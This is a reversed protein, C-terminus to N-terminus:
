KFGYKRVSNISICLISILNKFFNFQNYNKNIYWIWYFNRIKNSQLSNSRIRYKTLIETVCYAYKIKKLIKCKFYYDECIKTNTFNVNKVLNKKIIMTSTGISTNKVFSDFNIKEPPMITKLDDHISISNNKTKFALYGTYTFEFNNKLMYNLQELLKDKYWIDDSDIFAVYDSKSYRMAINRCFGPGKNKKLWIIQIKQNKLYKKIQEKNKIDSNDDVIILKWNKFTQNLISDITESIFETSNYNPLIIDVTVENIKKLM